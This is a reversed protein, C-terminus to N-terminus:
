LLVRFIDFDYLTDNILFYFMRSLIYIVVCSIKRQYYIKIVIARLFQSINRCLVTHFYECAGKLDYLLRDNETDTNRSFNSRFQTFSASRPIEWQRREQPYAKRQNLSDVLSDVPHRNLYMKTEKIIEKLVHKTFFQSKFWLRILNSM